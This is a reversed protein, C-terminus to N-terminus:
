SRPPKSYPVFDGFACSGSPFRSSRDVTHVIDGRCLQGNHSVTVIIDDHRLGFCGGGTDTVFARGGRGSSYVLTDGFPEVNLGIPTICTTPKGPQRGALAKALRAADAADVAAQRAAMEPTSACGALLLLPLATRLM